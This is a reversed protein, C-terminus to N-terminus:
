LRDLTRRPNRGTPPAPPDAEGNRLKRALRGKRTQQAKVTELETKLDAMEAKLSAIDEPPTAAPLKAIQERLSGIDTQLQQLAEPAAGPPLADVRGVLTALQDQLPKLATLWAPDDQPPNLPPPPSPPAPDDGIAWLPRPLRLM